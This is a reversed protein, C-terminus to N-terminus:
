NGCLGQCEELFNFTQQDQNTETKFDVEDLPQLSRHVFLKTTTGRIGDRVARDMEVADTWSQPDEDKM